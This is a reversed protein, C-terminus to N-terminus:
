EDVLRQDILIQAHGLRIRTSVMAGERLRRLLEPGLPQLLQLRNAAKLQELAEDQTMRARPYCVCTRGTIFPHVGAELVCAHDEYPGYTTLNVILVHQRDFQPDSIITWVHRDAIGKFRFVDGANM